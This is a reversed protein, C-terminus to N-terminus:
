ALDRAFGQFEAALRLILAWNLQETQWRRGAAALPAAASGNIPM